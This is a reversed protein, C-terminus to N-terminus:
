LVAQAESTSDAAPSGAVEAEAEEPCCTDQIYRWWKYLFDSDPDCLDDMVAQRLFENSINETLTTEIYGKADDLTLAYLEAQTETDDYNIADIVIQFFFGSM